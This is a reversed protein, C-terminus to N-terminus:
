KSEHMFTVLPEQGQCSGRLGPVAPARVSKSLVKCHCCGVKGGDPIDCSVISSWYLINEQSSIECM